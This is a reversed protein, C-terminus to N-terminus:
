LGGTVNYHQLLDVRAGLERETDSFYSGPVGIEKSDFIM